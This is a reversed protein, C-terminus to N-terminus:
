AAIRAIRALGKTFNNRGYAHAVTIAHEVAGYHWSRATNAACGIALGISSWSTRENHEQWARLRVTRQKRPSVGHLLALHNEAEDIEGATFGIQRGWKELIEAFDAGTAARVNDYDWHDPRREPWYAGMGAPGDGGQCAMILCARHLRDMMQAHAGVRDIEILLVFDSDLPTLKM